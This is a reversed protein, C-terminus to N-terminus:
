LNPDAKEGLQLAPCIEGLVDTSSELRKTLKPRRGIELFVSISTPASESNLLAAFVLENDSMKRLKMRM